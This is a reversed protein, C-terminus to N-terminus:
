KSKTTIWDGILQLLQPVVTRGPLSAYGTVSGVSDQLFLHNVDPLVHVAVDTNGAGRLTTSIVAAQDATVQRDTAGHVILVPVRVKQLTLVPDYDRFFRVWPQEKGIQDLVAMNTAVLSDREAQTKNDLQAAAQRNQYELIRRGTYGPGALLVIGRLKSDEAAVMPAIMGGESHGILFIRSADIDPRTRLYAIVARTDNAFDASTSTAHVGTSAGYGRDDYRFVAVDRLALMEAIERFPRYGRMGALAEDRDQPGSGSILIAVAVKGQRNRPRTLTGAIVHGERTSVKVDEATYAATAPASYDPKAEPARSLTGAVREVTLNQLPVAAHLIRGRADLHIRLDAGGISVVASDAAIWKVKAPITAGNGVLFLPMTVSDGVTRQARMIGLEIFSFALNVFPVVDPNAAFRQVPQAVGGRSGEAVISDRGFTVIGRTGATDANPALMEIRLQRPARNLIDLSYRLRNPVARGSLQGELRTPNFVFNEIAITDTGIRVVFSESQASAIRPLAACLLLALLTKKM